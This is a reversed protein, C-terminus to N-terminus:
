APVRAAAARARDPTPRAGCAPCGTACGCPAGSGGCAAGPGGRVHRTARPRGPRGDGREGRRLLERLRPGEAVNVEVVVLVVHPGLVLRDEVLVGVPQLGVWVRDHQDLAVTVLPARVLVVESEALAPGLRRSVVDHRDPDVARPDGQDAIALLAREAVLVGLRAPALVTPAVEEDLRLFTVARFPPCHSPARAATARTVPHAGSVPGRSRSSKSRRRASRM